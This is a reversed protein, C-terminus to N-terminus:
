FYAERSLPLINIILLELSFTDNIVFTGRPFVHKLGVSLQHPSCFQKYIIM